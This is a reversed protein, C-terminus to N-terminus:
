IAVKPQVATKTTEIAASILADPAVGEAEGEFNLLVRHRLAPAAVRDVDEFAVNFRGQVLARVKATLVLAQAGRPSSGFRVFRRVGDPADEGNPHTALMLRLAYERVHDALAVSRATRQM